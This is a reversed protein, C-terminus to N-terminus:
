RLFRSVEGVVADGVASTSGVVWGSAQRAGGYDLRELHRRTEPPLTGANALLLPADNRAALPAAALTM